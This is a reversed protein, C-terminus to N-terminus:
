RENGMLNQLSNAVDTLMLTDFECGWELNDVCGHSRIIVRNVEKREIRKGTLCICLIDIVDRLRFSEWYGENNKHFIRHLDCALKWTYRGWLRMTGLYNVCGHDRFEVFVKNLTKREIRKEYLYYFWVDKREVYMDITTSSLGGFVVCM